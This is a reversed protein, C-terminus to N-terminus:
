ICIEASGPHLSAPINNKQQRQPEAVEHQEECKRGQSGLDSRHFNTGYGLRATCARKSQTDTDSIHVELAQLSATPQLMGLRLSAALSLAIRVVVIKASQAM